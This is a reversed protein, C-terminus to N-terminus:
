PDRPLGHVRIFVDIQEHSTTVAKCAIDLVPINWCATFGM